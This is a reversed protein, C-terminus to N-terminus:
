CKERKRYLESATRPKPKLLNQYSWRLSKTKLKKIDHEVAKYLTSERAAKVDGSYLKPMLSKIRMLYKPLTGKRLVDDPSGYGDYLKLATERISKHTRLATGVASRINNHLDNSIGHIRTSLKMRDQSWAVDVLKHRVANGVSVPPSKIGYGRLAAEYVMDEIAERNLELFDLEEIAKGFSKSLTDGGRMYTMMKKVLLDSAKLYDQGYKGMMRKLTHDFEDRNM